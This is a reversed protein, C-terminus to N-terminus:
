RMTTYDGITATIAAGRIVIALADGDSQAQRAALESASMWNYATPLFRFLPVGLAIATVLVAIARQAHVSLWLPLHRQM